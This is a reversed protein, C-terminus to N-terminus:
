RVEFRADEYDDMREEEKNRVIGRFKNRHAVTFYEDNLVESCLATRGSCKEQRFTAPCMRYTGRVDKGM